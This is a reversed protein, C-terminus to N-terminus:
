GDGGEDDEFGVHDGTRRRIEEGRVKVLEEAGGVQM